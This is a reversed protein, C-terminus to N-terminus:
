RGNAAKSAFAGQLLKGTAGMCAAHRLFFLQEKRAVFANKPPSGQGLIWFRRSIRNRQAMGNAGEIVGVDVLVGDRVYVGVITVAVGGTGVGPTHKETVDDCTSGNGKTNIHLWPEM